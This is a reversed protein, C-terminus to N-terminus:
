NEFILRLNSYRKLSRNQDEIFRWTQMYNGPVCFKSETMFKLFKPLDDSYLEAFDVALDEKEEPTCNMRNHLVHELNCSFYFVRYPIGNIEKRKYLTRLCAKKMQNRQRINEPSATFIDDESYVPREAEPQRVVHDEDIFAGDTDVLHIIQEFDKKRLHYGAMYDAVYKHVRAVINDSCSGKVTTVDGHVVEVHVKSKDFFNSFNAGLSINETPGEVLIFVVKKVVTKSM